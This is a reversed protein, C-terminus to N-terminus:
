GSATPGGRRIRRRAIETAGTTVVLTILLPLAAALDRENAILVSGATAGVAVAVIVSLQRGREARTGTAAVLEGILVTLTGTVYTTSVDPRWSVAVATQGGMALASALALVDLEAGEPRGDVALWLGLFALQALAIAALVSRGRALPRQDPAGRLLRTGAMVGVVFGAVALAARFASHFDADGLAVGLFVVNATVAATFVGLVTLSIADVAGAALALAVLLPDRALIGPDDRAPVEGAV